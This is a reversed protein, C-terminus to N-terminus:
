PCTAATIVADSAGTTYKCSYGYTTSQASFTLNLVNNAGITSFSIPTSEAM